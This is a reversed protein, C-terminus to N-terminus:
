GFLTAGYHSGLGSLAPGVLQAQAAAPNNGLGYDGAGQLQPPGQLDAPGVTASPEITPLGLGGGMLGASGPVLAQPDIVPLGFAGAAGGNQVANRAANAAKESGLMNELQRIGGSVLSTIAATWGAARSGPFAMMVAGAGVGIAAGIGEAYDDMTTMRRVAMAGGSQAAAGIAAGWNPGLGVAQGFEDLGFLDVSGSMHDDYAGLENSMRQEGITTKQTKLTKLV